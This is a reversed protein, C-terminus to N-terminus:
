VLRRKWIFYMFAFWLLVIVLIVYWFVYQSGEGPLAVNMGYLGSIAAPISVIITFVTLIKITKNLRNTLAIAHYDRINSLTKLSTSCLNLNQKSDVILDEIQEKDEDVFRIKRIMKSYLLNTYFYMSRLNNLFEEQQLLIGMDQERLQATAKRRKQVIKVANTIAQEFEENLLSLITIICKLKRTTILEEKGEIIKKIVSPEKDSMTLLFHNDLIILMTGIEHESLVTKIFLYIKGLGFDIRPLENEDLGEELLNQDLGFREHLEALEETTPATVNIWCGSKFAPLKQLKRSGQAREYYDIM